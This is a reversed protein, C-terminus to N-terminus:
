NKSNQRRTRQRKKAVTKKAVLKRTENALIRKFNESTKGLSALFANSTAKGLVKPDLKVMPEIKRVATALKKFLGKEYKISEEKKGSM